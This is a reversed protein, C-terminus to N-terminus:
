KVVTFNMLACNNGENLESVAGQYDVCCRYTRAGTDGLRISDSVVAETKECGVCLESAEVTDNDRFRDWNIWYGLLISTPSPANGVNKVTCYPHVYSDKKVIGGNRIFSSGVKLYLDPVYFDPRYAIVEYSSILCNNGENTEPNQGNTDTCAMIEHTGPVSARFPQNMTHEWQDVGPGLEWQDSGDGAMQVFSGGPAKEYYTTQTGSPCMTTGINRIATRLGYAEGELLSTKGDDLTVSSITLDCGSFANQSFDFVEVRSANNSEKVEEVEETPDVIVQFSIQDLPLNPLTYRYTEQLTTGETLKSATLYGRYIKQWQGESGLRVYYDLEVKEKGADMWPLVDAGEAKVRARLDVELPPGFVDKGAYLEYGQPHMIDFDLNLDLPSVLSGSGGRGDVIQSLNEAQLAKISGTLAVTCQPSFYYWLQDDPTDALSAKILTRLLGGDPTRFREVRNDPQNIRCYYDYYFAEPHNEKNIVLHRYELDTLDIYGDPRKSEDDLDIWRDGFLLSDSFNYEKFRVGPRGTSPNTGVDVVFAVHGVQLIQDADWWAVMGLYPKTRFAGLIKAIHGWRGANSWSYPAKPDLYDIGKPPIEVAMASSIRDKDTSNMGSFFYQNTFKYQSGYIRAWDQSVRYAVYSTCNCTYFSWVDAVQGIDPCSTSYGKANEYGSDVAAYAVSCLCLLFAILLRRM